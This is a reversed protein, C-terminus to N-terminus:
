FSEPEPGALLTLTAEGRRRTAEMLTKLNARTPGAQAVNEQPHLAKIGQAQHPLHYPTSELFIIREVIHM